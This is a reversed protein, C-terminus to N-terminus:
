LSWTGECARYAKASYYAWKPKWFWPFWRHPCFGAGCKVQGRSSSQWNAKSQMREYPLKYKTRPHKQHKIHEYRKRMAKTGIPHGSGGERSRRGRCNAMAKNRPYISLLEWILREWVVVRLRKARYHRERPVCGKFERYMAKLYVFQRNPM